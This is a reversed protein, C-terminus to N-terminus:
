MASFLDSTLEYMSILKCRTQNDAYQVSLNKKINFAQLDENISGSISHPPDNPPEPRQSGRIM